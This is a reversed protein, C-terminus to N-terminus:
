SWNCCCNSIGRVSKLLRKWFEPFTLKPFLEANAIAAALALSRIRELFRVSDTLFALLPLLTVDFPLSDLRSPLNYNFYDIMNM